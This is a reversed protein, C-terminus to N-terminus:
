ATQLFASFFHLCHEEPRFSQWGIWQTSCTHACPRAAPLGLRLAGLRPGRAGAAGPCALASDGALRTAHCVYVASGSGPVDGAHRGAVPHCLACRGGHLRPAAPAARRVRQKSGKLGQCPLLQGFPPLPVGLEYMAVQLMNLQLHTIASPRLSWIYKPAPSQKNPALGHGDVVALSSAAGLRRGWAATARSPLESGGRPHRARPQRRAPAPLQSVLRGPRRARRPPPKAPEARALRRHLSRGHQTRDSGCARKPARRCTGVAARGQGRGARQGGQRRKHGHPPAAGRGQEEETAATTLFPTPYLAGRRQLQLLQQRRRWTLLTDSRGHGRSAKVRDAHSGPSTIPLRWPQENRM